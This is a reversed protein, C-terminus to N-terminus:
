PNHIILGNEFKNGDEANLIGRAWVTYIKGDELKLEFEYDQTTPPHEQTLSSYSKFKANYVGTPVEHYDTYQKFGKKSAFLSDEVISFDIKGANPSLNLFRVKAKGASPKSLDDRLLLSSLTDTDSGALFLSHYEGKTLNIPQEYMANRNTNVKYFSALNNGPYVTFYLIRKGFGVNTGVLQRNLVFDFASTDPAGHIVTLGSLVNNEDFDNDKLCSSFGLITFLAVFLVLTLQPQKRKLKTNM